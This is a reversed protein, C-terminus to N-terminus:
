DELRNGKGINSFILLLEKKKKGVVKSGQQKLKTTRYMHYTSKGDWVLQGCTNKQDREGHTLPRSFCFRNDEDAFWGRVNITNNNNAHAAGLETTFVRSSNELNKREIARKTMFNVNTVKMTRDSFLKTIQEQTLLTESALASPIHFLFIFLSIFYCTPKM